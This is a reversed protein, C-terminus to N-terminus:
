ISRTPKLQVDLLRSLVDRQEEIFKTDVGPLDIQRLYLRPATARSRSRDVPTPWPAISVLRDRAAAAKGLVRHPNALM